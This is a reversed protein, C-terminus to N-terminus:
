KKYEADKDRRDKLSMDQYEADKAYYAKPSRPEFPSGLKSSYLFLLSLINSLSSSMVV